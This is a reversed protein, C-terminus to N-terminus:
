FKKRMKAIKSALLKQKMREEKMKLKANQKVMEIEMELIEKELVDSADYRAKYRFRDFLEINDTM